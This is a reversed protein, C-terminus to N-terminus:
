RVYVASAEPMWHLERYFNALITDPENIIFADEGQTAAAAVAVPERYLDRAFSALVADETSAASVANGLLDREFSAVIANNGLQLSSNIFDIPGAKAFMTGMTVSDRSLDREFSALVQDSRTRYAQIVAEEGFARDFSAQAQDAHNANIYSDNCFARDFSAAVTDTGAHAFAPLLTTALTAFLQSLKM